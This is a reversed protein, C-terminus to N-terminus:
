HQIKRFYLINDGEDVNPSTLKLTTDTVVAKNVEYRSGKKQYGVEYYTVTSNVEDITYAMASSIEGESHFLGKNDPLFEYIRKPILRMVQKFQEMAEEISLSNNYKKLAEKRLSVSDKEFDYYFRGTFEQAVLKWKGLINTKNIKVQATTQLSLILPFLITLIFKMLIFFIRLV